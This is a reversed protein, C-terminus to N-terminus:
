SQNPTSKLDTSTVRSQFHCTKFINHPQKCATGRGGGGGGGREGKAQKERAKVNLRDSSTLRPPFSSKFNM